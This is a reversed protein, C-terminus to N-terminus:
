DLMALRETAKCDVLPDSQDATRVGGTVQKFTVCSCHSAVDTPSRAGHSSSVQLVDDRRGNFSASM